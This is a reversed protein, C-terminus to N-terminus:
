GQGGKAQRNEVYDILTQLAENAMNDINVVPNKLDEQAASMRAAQLTKVALIAKELKM